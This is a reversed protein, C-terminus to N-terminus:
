QNSAQHTVMAVPERELRGPLASAIRLCHAVGLQECLETGVLPPHTPLVFSSPPSPRVSGRSGKLEAGLAPDLPRPGPFSCHAIPEGGMDRIFTTDGYHSGSRSSADRDLRLLDLSPSVAQIRCKEVVM